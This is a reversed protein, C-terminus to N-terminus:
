VCYKNILDIILTNKDRENTKLKELSEKTTKCGQLFVAQSTFGSPSSWIRINETVEVIEMIGFSKANKTYELVEKFSTTRRSGFIETKPDCTKLEFIYM